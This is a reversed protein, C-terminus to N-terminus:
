RGCRQARPDGCCIGVAAGGVRCWNGGSCARCRRRSHCGATTVRRCFDRVTPVATFVAAGAGLVIRGAVAGGVASPQRLEALRLQLRQELYQIMM